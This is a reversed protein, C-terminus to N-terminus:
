RCRDEGLDPIISAPRRGWDLVIPETLGPSLHEALIPERVEVLEAPLRPAVPAAQDVDMPLPGNRVLLGGGIRQARGELSDAVLPAYPRGFWSLWTPTLPLGDWWPGHIWPITESQPTAWLKRQRDVVHRREVYGAGFFAATADAVAAFLRVILDCAAPQAELATADADVQVISRRKAGVPEVHDLAPAFHGGLFPASTTWNLLRQELWAAEFAARGSAGTAAVGREPEGGAFRRPLARPDVAAAAELYRAALDSPVAGAVHWELTLRRIEIRGQAQNTRIGDPIQRM